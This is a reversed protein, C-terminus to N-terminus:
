AAGGGLTIDAEQEDDWKEMPKIRPPGTEEEDFGRTSARESMAREQDTGALQAPHKYVPVPGSQSIQKLVSNPNLPEAKVSVIQTYHHDFGCGACKGEPNGHEVAYDCPELAVIEIREGVGHEERDRRGDKARNQVYHVYSHCSQLLENQHPRDAAPRIYVVVNKPNITHGKFGGNRTLAFPCRDWENCGMVGKVGGLSALDFSPM